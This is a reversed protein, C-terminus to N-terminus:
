DKEINAYNRPHIYWLLMNGQVFFFIIEIIENSVILFIKKVFIRHKAIYKGTWQLFFVKSSELCIFNFIKKKRYVFALTDSRM